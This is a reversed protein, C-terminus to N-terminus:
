PIVYENKLVNTTKNGPFDTIRPRFTEDIGLRRKVVSIVTDYATRLRCTATDMVRTRPPTNVPSIRPVIPGGRRTKYFM